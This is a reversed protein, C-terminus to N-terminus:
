ASTGVDERKRDAYILLPKANGEVVEASIVVEEVSDHTPLDFM